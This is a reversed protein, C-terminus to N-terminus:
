SFDPDTRIAAIIVVLEQLLSTGQETKPEISLDHPWEDYVIRFDVNKYTFNWWRTDVSTSNEVAVPVVNEAGIGGLVNKVMNPIGELTVAECISVYHFGTPSIEVFAKM